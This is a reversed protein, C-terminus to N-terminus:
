IVSAIIVLNCSQNSIGLCPCYRQGRHLTMVYDASSEGHYGYTSISNNNNFNHKFLWTLIQVNPCGYRGLWVDAGFVVVINMILM